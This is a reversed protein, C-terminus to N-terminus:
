AFKLEKSAFFDCTQVYTVKILGTLLHRNQLLIVKARLEM